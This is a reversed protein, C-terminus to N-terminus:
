RSERKEAAAEVAEVVQVYGTCRCLNGSLAEVVSDRDPNPNEDLLARASLLMGPTCFGCQIAGHEIFEKQLIDMKEQHMLGEVTKVNRGDLQAALMLCSNVALGDVLITCAGCEGIGCGEKAGKLHFRDRLVMLASDEPNVEISVEKGNLQFSIKLM